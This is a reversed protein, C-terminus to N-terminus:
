PAWGYQRRLFDDLAAALAAAFRGRHEPTDRVGPGHAELQVADVTGGDRSGYRATNFGGSFYDEGGPSQQGPSPVGAYGAAQLLGGLSTPGRVLAAFSAGSRAEAALRRVSSATALRELLSDPVDLATRGVLYGWELRPLPRGHGHLDLVLGRGATAVMRARASDAFAHFWRWARDLAANAGTAEARDRNGDFRNRHLLNVVLHPRAGTRAVIAEVLRRALDQTQEDNATAR